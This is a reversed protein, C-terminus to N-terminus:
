PLQQLCVDILVEMIDDLYRKICLRSKFDITGYYFMPLAMRWEHMTDTECMIDPQTVRAYPSLKIKLNATELSFKVFDVHYADDIDATTISKVNLM